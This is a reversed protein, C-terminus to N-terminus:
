RVGNERAKAINREHEAGTEAFAHRGDESIKVYYLYTDDTPEVAARLAEAGPAAIPTPPLGPFKYTNYPSDIELDEFLVRTTHEGLAYIVTADIQLLMGNEIRNHIVASVVRREDAIKTEEEVLSAVVIAEYPTLGVAQAKQTVGAEDAVQEFLNVMRRLIAEENEDEAVYYTDPFLLGELNTSGEPQYKSRVAGSSAVELFRDPSRGTEGVREAIQELTFGEPITIRQYEIEPGRELASIADGMGMKKRLEGRRYIGAQFEGAGTIRSYLRFVRASTVVGREDLIAAIRAASTGPPIEVTVRDGPSGPPDIQRVLWLGAIGLIMAVGILLGIAIKWARSLARRRPESQGRPTPTPGTEPDEVVTAEREEEPERTDNM